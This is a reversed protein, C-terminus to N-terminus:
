LSFNLSVSNLVLLNEFSKGLNKLDSDTFNRNRYFIDIVM